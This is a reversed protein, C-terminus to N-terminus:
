HPEKSNKRVFEPEKSNIRLEKSNKRVLEPGISNKRLLGETQGTIQSRPIRGSM